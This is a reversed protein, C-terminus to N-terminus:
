WCLSDIFFSGCAMMFLLTAMVVNFGIAAITMDVIFRCAKDYARQLASKKTASKRVKRAIAPAESLVCLEPYKDASMNCTYFQETM